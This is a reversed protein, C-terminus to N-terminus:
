KFFEPYDERDFLDYLAEKDELDILLGMPKSIWKFPKESVQAPRQRQELGLVLLESVIRGLPKREARQLRKVDRLVVDDINLTTRAMIRSAIVPLM